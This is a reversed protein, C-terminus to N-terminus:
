KGNNTYKRIKEITQGYLVANCRPCIETEGSTLVRWFYGECVPCDDDWELTIKHKM